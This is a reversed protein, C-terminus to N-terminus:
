QLLAAHILAAIAVLPHALRQVSEHTRALHRQNAARFPVSASLVVVALDQADRAAAVAVHAAIVLEPLVEPQLTIFVISWLHARSLPNISTCHLPM